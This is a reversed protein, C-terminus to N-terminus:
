TPCWELKFVGLRKRPFDFFSFGCARSSDFPRFSAFARSFFFSFGFLWFRAPAHAVAIPQPDSGTFSKSMKFEKERSDIQPRPRTWACRAGFEHKLNLAASRYSTREPTSYPSVWPTSQEVHVMGRERVKPSRQRQLRECVQGEHSLSTDVM